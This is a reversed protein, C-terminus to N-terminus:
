AEAEVRIEALSARRLREGLRGLAGRVSGDIVEDGMTVVVGGILEPDVAHEPVVQKGSLRGLSAVLRSVEPVTLGVASTIQVPLVGEHDNKLAIYQERIEEIIDLRDRAVAVHLFDRVLPLVADMFVRDVVGQKTDTAVLPQALLAKADPVGGLTDVVADLDALVSAVEDREAAIAFLADAYRRAAIVASV